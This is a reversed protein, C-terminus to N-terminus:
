AVHMCSSRCAHELASVINKLKPTFHKQIGVRHGSKLFQMSLDLEGLQMPPRCDFSFLTMDVSLLQFDNFSLSRCLRYNGVRHKVIISCNFM